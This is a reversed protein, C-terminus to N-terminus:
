GSASESSSRRRAFARQCRRRLAKPKVELLDSGRAVLDEVTTVGHQVVEFLLLQVRDREAETVGPRCLQTFAANLLILGGDLNFM